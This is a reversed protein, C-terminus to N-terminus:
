TTIVSMGKPRNAGIMGHPDIGEIGGVTDRVGRYRRFVLGVNVEEIVVDVEEGGADLFLPVVEEHVGSLGEFDGDKEIVAEVVYLFRGVGSVGPATVSDAEIVIVVGAIAVAFAVAEFGGDFGVAVSPDEGEGGSLNTGDGHADGYVADDGKGEVDDDKVSVVGECGAIGEPRRVAFARDEAGGGGEFFMGVEGLIGFGTVIDEGDGARFVVGIVVTGDGCLPLSGVGEFGEEGNGIVGEGAWGEGERGEVRVGGGGFVVGFVGDCELVLEL